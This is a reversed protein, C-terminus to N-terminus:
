DPTFFWVAGILGDSVQYVAIAEFPEARVGSIREHDVVKNGMVIRNVIEAKLAPLNFRELAYFDAFARKGSLVPEMAPPRFVKVDDRYQAVFTQLDRANYANLQRQVVFEPTM